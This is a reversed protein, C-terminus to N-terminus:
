HFFVRGRVGAVQHKQELRAAERLEEALRQAQVCHQLGGDAHNYVVQSDVVPLLERVLPQVGEFPPPDLRIVCIPITDTRQVKGRARTVKLQGGHLVNFVAVFVHEVAEWDPRDETPNHDNQPGGRDHIEEPVECVRGHSEHPQRIPVCAAGRDTM